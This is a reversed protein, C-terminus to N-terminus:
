SLPAMQPCGVSAAHMRFSRSLPHPSAWPGRGSTSCVATGAHRLAAPWACAGIMNRTDPTRTRGGADGPWQAARTALPRKWRRSTVAAWIAANVTEPEHQEEVHREVHM